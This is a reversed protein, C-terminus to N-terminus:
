RYDWRTAGPMAQRDPIILAFIKILSIMSLVSRDVSDEDSGVVWSDL